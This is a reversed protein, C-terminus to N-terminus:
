IIEKSYKGLKIMNKVYKKFKLDGFQPCEM